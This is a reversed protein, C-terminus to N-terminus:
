PRVAAVAPGIAEELRVRPEWGITEAAADTLYRADRRFLALEGRAPALAARELGPLGLRRWAKAPLSAAVEATLRSPSVRRLPPAGAAAALRAFYDNWSMRDPGDINLPLFGDPGALIAAAAARAVDDVHVLPARAAAASGFDGWAGARIRHVMKDVWLTSGPGYVASARLAVASRNPGAATWEALRAEAAVKAAGYDGVPPVPPDDERVEGTRAGYVEISSLYVVRAVGAASAAKTLRVVDDALSSTAGGYAAHVVGTTGAMAAALAKADDLPASATAVGRAALSATLPSHHLGARVPAGRDLLAACVARGIFGAAGTVLVPGATM